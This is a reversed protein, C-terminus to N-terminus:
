TDHHRNGIQNHRESGRRDPSPTFASMQNFIFAENDLSSEDPNHSCDPLLSNALPTGYISQRASSLLISADPDRFHKFHFSNIQRIHKKVSRCLRSFHENAADQEQILLEDNM